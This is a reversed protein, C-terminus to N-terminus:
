RDKSFQGRESSLPIDKWIVAQKLTCGVKTQDRRSLIYEQM